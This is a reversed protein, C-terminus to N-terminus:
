RSKRGLDRCPCSGLCKRMSWPHGECPRDTSHGSACEWNTGAANFSGSQGCWWGDRGYQEFATPTAGEETAAPCVHTDGPCPEVAAESSMPARCSICTPSFGKLEEPEVDRLLISLDGFDHEPDALSQAELLHIRRREIAIADEAHRREKHAARLRLRASDLERALSRGESLSPKTM